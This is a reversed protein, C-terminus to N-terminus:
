VHVGLGTKTFASMANASSVFSGIGDALVVKKFLGMTFMASGAAMAMWNFRTAASTAFQPMTERHHIIPGAILHPFWTVFLLYYLPDHEHAESRYVDVVFAIQTFTFFSIGLPLLVAAASLQTGSVTNIASLFFGAYKYYG